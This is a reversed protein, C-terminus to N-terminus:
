GTESGFAPRISHTRNSRLWAEARSRGVLADFMARGAPGIAALEALDLGNPLRVPRWREGILPGFREAAKRGAGDPDFVGYIAVAAGLAPLRELPFHTGCVSFAPLGWGLAALWDFPGEAMYAVQQGVVHELGLVPREGVLSLYKPRRPRVEQSPPALQGPSPTEEIARGIFWIARGGRLEPVIIRDTFFERYTQEEMPEGPRAAILGVSDAIELLSTGGEPRGTAERLRALLSHGDAYGIRQAHAVDERVARARMYRLARASGWLREQFVECAVQLVHLEPADDALAEWRRAPKRPEVIAPTQVKSLRGGAVLRECAELFSCSERAMVFDIVDGHASCSFCHYHEDNPDRVDVCFSPTREEHFPCLAWLRGNGTRRLSCGSAEVVDALPRERKLTETDVRQVARRRGSATNAM